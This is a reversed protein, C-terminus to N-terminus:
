LLTESTGGGGGRPGSYPGLCISSYTGLPLSIRTLSTGRYDRVKHDLYIAEPM